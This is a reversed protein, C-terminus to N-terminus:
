DQRGLLKRQLTEPHISEFPLQKAYGPNCVFVVTPSYKSQLYQKVIGDSVTKSVPGFHKIDKQRFVTGYEVRVGFEIFKQVFWHLAKKTIHLTNRLDKYIDFNDTRTILLVYRCVSNSVLQNLNEISKWQAFPAVSM